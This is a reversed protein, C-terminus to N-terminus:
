FDPGKARVESRSICKIITFVWSITHTVFNVFLAMTLFPWKLIATKETKYITRKRKTFVTQAAVM